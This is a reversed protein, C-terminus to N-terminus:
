YRSRKSVLRKAHIRHSVMARCEPESTDAFIRDTPLCDLFEQNLAPADDFFRAMHWYDDLTRFTGSVYSPHRRYEDHRGQYGFVDTAVPHTGFVERVLVAQPGFAEYEKQWFDDKSSRIWQRHLQDAYITRPRVSMLSIVYGSEPFFRGYRRTRLSAIGHGKQDGVSVTESEATALVESFAITQKGGGLYEPIDLRGDRPRVGHFNLYDQIRSGWRNRAELHRQMAMAMRFENVDIGGGVSQSLDAAMTSDAHSADAFMRENVGGTNSAVGKQAAINFIGQEGSGTDFDGHMPHHATGGLADPDEITVRGLGTVPVVSGTAFPISIATGQQPTPRSTTFYDKSWSIRALSQDTLAREAIIDQDRYYENYIMNYARLPLVSFAGAPYDVGPPVGMHDLVDGLVVDADEANMPIVAEPDRGTIFEDWEDFIIRMPVYWHHIRVDVPHMVPAVLTAARLLVSTTHVFTDGMLVEMCAVPVLQGMDFTTLRYHSLNHRARRMSPM